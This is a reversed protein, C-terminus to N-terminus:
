SIGLTNAVKHWFHPPLGFAYKEYILTYCEEMQRLLPHLKPLLVLHHLHLKKSLQRAYHETFTM